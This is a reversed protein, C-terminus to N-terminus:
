KSSWYTGKQEKWRKLDEVMKAHDFGLDEKKIEYLDFWKAESAEDSLKVDYNKPKCIFAVALIQGRPDRDPASYVGLIDLLEVELGTEEKAERICTEEITEGEEMHGGPFVYKGGFPQKFRKMLLVKEGNLIVPDAAIYFKASPTRNM